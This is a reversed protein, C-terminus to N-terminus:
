RTPDRGEDISKWLDLNTQEELPAATTPGGDPTDYRTGIEPWTPVQRVALATMAVCGLAGVAAAWFWASLGVEFPSSPSDGLAARVRGSLQSGDVVVAAATGLAALLGLVCVARRVRGRTVLLVGWCALCVLALAGAAPSEGVGTGSALTSDALAQAATDGASVTVWTQHGGVAALTAAALGLLVVRGFTSRPRTLSRDDSM